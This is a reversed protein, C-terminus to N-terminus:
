NMGLYVACEPTLVESIVKLKCGWSFETGGSLIKRHYFQPQMLFVRCDVGAQLLWDVPQEIM